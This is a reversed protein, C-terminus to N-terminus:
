SSTDYQMYESPVFDRGAMVTKFVQRDRDGGHIHVIWIPHLNHIRRVRAKMQIYDRVKYSMSAFVMCSFKDADFGEGISAQVIFICDDAAQAREIADEQDKTGGHMTIVEHQRSLEKEYLDIQERYHCVLLVKRFQRAYERIIQLKQRGNEHRHEEVFAAAPEWEQSTFPPSTVKAEEITVPPLEGVLDRMLVIDAYKELLPQMEKRWTKIPLYAPRPLYPRSELKFFADQWKRYNIKHNLYTLLTHLNWPTSRIPTASLLLLPMDPVQVQDLWDYLAESRKSRLSPLYLPSAFEDAEDVVTASKKDIPPAKVFDNFTMVQAKAGVRELETEWKKKIRKPCIVLANADRGDKLWLAACVSKGTGAEHALLARDPYGTVFKKQHEFLKM